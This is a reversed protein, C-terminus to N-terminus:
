RIAAPLPPPAILRLMQRPTAASAVTASMAVLRTAILTVNAGDVCRAPAAVVLPGSCVVPVLPMM